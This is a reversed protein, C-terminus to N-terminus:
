NQADFEDALKRNEGAQVEGLRGKNLAERREEALTIEYAVDNMEDDTLAIIHNKLRICEDAVHEDPLMWLQSLGKVKGVLIDNIYAEFFPGSRYVKLRKGSNERDIILKMNEYIGTPM